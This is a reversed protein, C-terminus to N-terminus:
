ATSQSSAKQSARRQAATALARTRGSLDTGQSHTPGRDRQVVTWSARQQLSGARERSRESLRIKRRLARGAAMSSPHVHIAQVPRPIVADRAKIAELSAVSTQEKTSRTGATATSDDGGQQPNGSLPAESRRSFCGVRRLDGSCNAPKLGESWPRRRPRPPGGEDKTWGCKGPRGM